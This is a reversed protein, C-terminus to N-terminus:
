SRCWIGNLVAAIANGRERVRESSAREGTELMYYYAILLGWVLLSVLVLTVTIRRVLTPQLLAKLM